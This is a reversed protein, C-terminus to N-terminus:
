VDDDEEEGELILRRGKDSFKRLRTKLSNRFIQYDSETLCKYSPWKSLISDIFDEDGPNMSKLYNAYVIKQICAKGRVKSLLKKSELTEWKPIIIKRVM